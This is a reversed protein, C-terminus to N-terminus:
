PQLLYPMAAAAMLDSDHGTDPVSALQWGFPLGREAAAARGADCFAQGRAVRHPGQALAEPTRRLGPEDPDTNEAGLLLTFPVQLAHRLQEEDVASSQLGYPWAVAFDPMTYWGANAAVARTVRAEPVHLLFRQVFQAGAAHGYIAYGEATMGFRQRLDDFIAEIAEFVWTSRPRVQGHADHVNGLSYGRAGPFDEASFEPLVLLFEREKALAYWREFEAGVDRGAGHMVFVVPRDAALGSPRGLLVKQEVGGPTQVEIRVKAAEAATAWISLLPALLLVLFLVHRNKGFHVAGRWLARRNSACARAMRACIAPFAHVVLLVSGGRVEAGSGGAAVDRQDRSVIEADLSNRLADFISITGNIAEDM